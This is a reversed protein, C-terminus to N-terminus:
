MVEQQSTLSKERQDEWNVLTKYKGELMRYGEEDLIFLSFKPYLGSIQRLKYEKEPSLYGIIEIYVDFDSLYFDPTYFCNGLFLKKPEYTYKISNFKLIRAFNAEWRSRVFHGIDGRFGAIGAGARIGVKRDKYMEKLKPSNKITLGKNFATYGKQFGSKILGLKMAEGYCKSNCFKKGKNVYNGCVPCLQSKRRGKTLLTKKGIAKTREDSIGKNWCDNRKKGFLPHQEKPRLELFKAYCHRCCFRKNKTEKGCIECSVVKM